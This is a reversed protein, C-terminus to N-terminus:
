FLYFYFYFLPTGTIACCFCIQSPVMLNCTPDRAESMPNLIRCQQSSHHLNCVHSPDPTVTTRAYAPLQLGLQVGLRPCEMHRLHPGSFVFYFLIFFLFLVLLERTAQHSFSGANDNCCSLNSSHHSNSEHQPHLWFNKFIFLYFYFLFYFMFQLIAM